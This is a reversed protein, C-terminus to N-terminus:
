RINFPYQDSYPPHSKKEHTQLTKLKKLPKLEIKAADSIKNGLFSLSFNSKYNIAILIKKINRQNRIYFTNDILYRGHVHKEMASRARAFAFSKAAEYASFLFIFYSVLAIPKLHM